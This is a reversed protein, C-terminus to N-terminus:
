TSNFFSSSVPRTRCGCVGTKRNAANFTIAPNKAEGAKSIKVGSGIKIRRQRAARPVFAAPRKRKQCQVM